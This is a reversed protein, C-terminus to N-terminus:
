RALAFLIGLVAGVIAGRYPNATLPCMGSSCKGVYGLVAGAGGGILVGLALRIAM